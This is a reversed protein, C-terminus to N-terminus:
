DGAGPPLVPLSAAAAEERVWAAFSQDLEDWSRGLREALAEPTAPGGAAIAGLYRRFAPALAGDDGALLYRVWFASHTYTLRAQDHVFAQDDLALLRPLPLLRHAAAAAALQALSSHAGYIQIRQGARVVVGGLTGPLLRGDPEIRSLGLDEAMGEDLWSPLQPGIARRNLLHTLEHALTSGVETGARGGDYLAVIGYGYQGSAEVGRLRPDERQLAEFESQRAYLVVAEAPKGKPRLGFRAAYIEELGGAVGDLLRLREPNDLDTYLKYAGVRGIHVAGALRARARALRVPDPPRADVPLVPLPANGLRPNGSAPPTPAASAARGAPEGTGPRGGPRGAAPAGGVQGAALLLALAATPLRM